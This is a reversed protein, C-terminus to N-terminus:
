PQSDLRPFCLPKGKRSGSPLADALLLLDVLAEGRQAPTAAMWEAISGAAERAPSPEADECSPSQLQEQLIQRLSPSLRRGKALEAILERAARETAPQRVPAGVRRASKRLAAPSPPKSARERAQEIVEDTLESFTVLTRSRPGSKTAQSERVEFGGRKTPVIFAM